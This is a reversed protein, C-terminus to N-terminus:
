ADAPKPVESVIQKLKWTQRSRELVPVHQLDVRVSQDLNKEKLYKEFNGRIADGLSQPDRGSSCVFKVQLENQQRHLLQFQVLGNCALLLHKLEMPPYAHCDGQNDKLWFIDDNRGDIEMVPLSRGCPCREGTLRISDDIRYRIIPQVFNILNTLLIHHSFTGVPVPKDHEDVPEVTAYDANLHLRGAKCENALAMCETTGYQEAITARPFANRVAHRATPTFPESSLSIVEPNFRVSNGSLKAHAIPELYTPYAHLYHPCFDNLEEINREMSDRIPFLRIKAFLATGSTPEPMIQRSVSTTTDVILFAMRYRRGFSFRAYNWPQMRDRHVRSFIVARLTKWSYIDNLFYGPDGTTGSTKSVLYRGRFWCSQRDTSDLFRVVDDLQIDEDAITDAFEEMMQAKTVVPVDSLSCRAPDLDGLRRSYFPIEKQAYALMRRLRAENLREFKDASYLSDRYFSAALARLFTMRVM